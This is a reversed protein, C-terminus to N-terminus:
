NFVIKVTPDDDTFDEILKAYKLVALGKDYSLLPIKLGTGPQGNHYVVLDFSYPLNEYADLLEKRYTRWATLVLSEEHTLRYQGTIESVDEDCAACPMLENGTDMDFLGGHWQNLQCDPHEGIDVGYETLDEETAMYGCQCLREWKWHKTEFPCEKTLFFLFTKLKSM